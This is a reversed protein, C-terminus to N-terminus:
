QNPKSPPTLILKHGMTVDGRKVTFTFDSEVKYLNSIAARVWGDVLWMGQVLLLFGLIIILRKNEPTEEILAPKGQALAAALQAPQTVTVFTVGGGHMAYFGTDAIMRYHQAVVQAAAELTNNQPPPQM